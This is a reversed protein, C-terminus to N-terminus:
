PRPHIIESSFDEFFQDLISRNRDIMKLGASNHYGFFGLDTGETQKIRLEEESENVPILFYFVEENTGDNSEVRGFFKFEPQNFTLSLEEDLERTLAEEISENDEVAGGFFAWTNPYLPAKGDRLQLLVQGERNYLVAKAIKKM